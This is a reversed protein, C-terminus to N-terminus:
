RNLRRRLWAPIRRAEWRLAELRGTRPSFTKGDREVGVVVGLLADPPVPADRHNVADGATKLYGDPLFGLFRHVVLSGAGRCAVLSGVRLNRTETPALTIRDGPLLTPRMSEGLVEFSVPRGGDLVEGALGALESASIRRVEM